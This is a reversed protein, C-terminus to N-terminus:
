YIWGRQTYSDGSNLVLMFCDELSSIVMTDINIITNRYRMLLEAAVGQYGSTTSNSENENTSDTQGNQSNSSSIKSDSNADSAATAYDGNGSLLTQPLEQSVTRSGSQTDSSTTATVENIGTEKGSSNAKTTIDITSIPDFEIQESLYLKNYYPMIQDMKKRIMLLWNDITETGIERNFYEDVIKGNIVDRYNEDFIPYTGLGMLSWDPVIPLKGYKVGNFRVEHYEQAWDYRDFNTGYIIEIVDKLEITYTSM